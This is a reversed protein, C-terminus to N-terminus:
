KRWPEPYKRKLAVIERMMKDRWARLEGVTAKGLMKDTEVGMQEIQEPSFSPTPYLDNMIGIYTAGYHTFYDRVGGDANTTAVAFPGMLAWRLGLGDRICADVADADAVGDAVLSIAEGLLAAQLRNIIFGNVYRNMMVPTQGLSRVFSCTTELVKRSTDKGPVIEVAPALHPPNVPHVVICRERGPLGEAILTMDIASTSSGLIVERSTLRDLEAHLAHKAAVIEPGSEQVYEAGDLADELREYVTVLSLLRQADERTCLGDAVDQAVDGKLWAIAKDAQGRSADYVRTQCGARAFVKIWCRGIVGTAVVAVTGFQPRKAGTAV